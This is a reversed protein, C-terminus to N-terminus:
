VSRDHRRTEGSHFRPGDHRGVGVGDGRLRREAAFKPDQAARLKWRQYPLNKVTLESMKGFFLEDVDKLDIRCRGMADSTGILTAETLKEFLVTVRNGDHGLSQVRMPTAANTKM